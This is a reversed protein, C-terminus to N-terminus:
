GPPVYWYRGLKLSWRLLRWEMRMDPPVPNQQPTWPFGSRVFLRKRGVPLGFILQITPLGRPIIHCWWRASRRPIAEHLEEATWAAYMSNRFDEFFRDLGRAVYDHGVTNVYQETIERTRLRVLDMVMVLGEPKTIRDMERLVAQVTPLDPMHHTAHTFSSVHATAAEVGEIRTVDGLRFEVQNQLGQEAANRNAIDVMGPSLDFGVVSQCHLYRALCLTYHGPGCALDVATGVPLSGTARFAVELGIGYAIALKTALVQDYQAINTGVDTVPFPEPTRCLRQPSFRHALTMRFFHFAISFFDTMARLLQARELFRWM